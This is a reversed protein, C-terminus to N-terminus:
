AATHYLLTYRGARCLIPWKPSSLGSCHHALALFQGPDYSYVHNLQREHCRALVSVPRTTQRLPPDLAQRKPTSGM